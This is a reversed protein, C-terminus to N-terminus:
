GNVTKQYDEFRSTWMRNLKENSEEIKQQVLSPSTQEQAPHPRNNSQIDQSTSLASVKESLEKVLPLGRLGPDAQVKANFQMVKDLFTKQQDDLEQHHRLNFAVFDIFSIM